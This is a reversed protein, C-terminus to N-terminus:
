VAFAISDEAMTAFGRQFFPDRRHRLPDPLMPRPLAADKLVNLNHPIQRSAPRFRRLAFTRPRRRGSCFSSHRIVLSSPIVFSSHRVTKNPSVKGVNPPRPKLQISGRVSRPESLGAVLPTAPPQVLMRDM